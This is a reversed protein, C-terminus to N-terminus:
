VHARGIQFPGRAVPGEGVVKVAAPRPSAADGRPGLLELMGGMRLVSRVQESPSAIRFAGQIARLQKYYKLLIRIGASSIYDVQGMELDIRRAGGQLLEALERDLQEAWHADLRGALILVTAEATQKRAIEM